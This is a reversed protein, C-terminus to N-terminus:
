ESHPDQMHQLHHDDGKLANSAQASHEDHMSHQQHHHGMGSHQLQQQMFQRQLAHMQEPSLMPMNPMGGMNPNYMPRQQMMPMSPMMMSNPPNQSLGQPNNSSKQAKSTPKKVPPEEGEQDRHSSEEKQRDRDQAAKIEYPRKEESSMSRWIEGLKAGIKGFPLDPREERLKSRREKCFIMYANCTRRPGTATEKRKGKKEGHSKSASNPPHSPAKPSPPGVNDPLPAVNVRVPLEMIFFCKPCQITISQPSHSLLTGCGICNIYNTTPMQPNMTNCCKPCQIYISNAPFSLQTSCYICKVSSMPVQSTSHSSM